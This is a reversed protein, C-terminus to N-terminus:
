VAIGVVTYVSQLCLELRYNSTRLPCDDKPGTTRIHLTCQLFVFSRIKSYLFLWYSIQWQKAPLSQAKWAMSRILKQTDSAPNHAASLWWANSSHKKCSCSFFCYCSNLVFAFLFWLFFFPYLSITPLLLFSLFGNNFYQKRWVLLPQQTFSFCFSM